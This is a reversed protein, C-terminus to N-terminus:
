LSGTLTLRHRGSSDPDGSIMQLGQILEPAAGDRPQLLGELRYRRELDLILTGTVELPGGADEFRASVGAGDTPLLEVVYSGLPILGQSRGGLMPPVALDQIRIDGAADTVVGERLELTALSLGIQGAMDGTLQTLPASLSALGTSARLESFSLTAWSAHVRTSAFGNELRAEISGRLQGLLLWWPSLDWRIEHLGIGAVQGASAQGSWLTGTLGGVQMAASRPLLSYATGAPFTALLFLLYAGAGLGLWKGAHM